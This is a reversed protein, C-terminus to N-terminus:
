EAYKGFGGSFGVTSRAVADWDVEKVFPKGKAHIALIDKRAELDPLELV